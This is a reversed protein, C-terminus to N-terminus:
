LLETAGLPDRSFMFGDRSLKTGLGSARQDCRARHEALVMVSEPDLVIRRDDENKTDKEWTEKGYQGIARQVHIVGRALDVQEL